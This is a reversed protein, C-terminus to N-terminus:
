NTQWTVIHKGEDAPNATHCSACAASKGNTLKIQRNFFHKGAFPLLAATNLTPLKKCVSRIKKELKVANAVDAHAFSAGFSLLAILLLNTKKM